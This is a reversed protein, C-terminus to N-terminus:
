FPWWSKKTPFDIILKKLTNINEKIEDDSSAEWNLDIKGRLDCVECRLLLSYKKELTLQKELLKYTKIIDRLGDIMNKLEENTTDYSIKSKVSLVYKQINEDEGEKLSNLKCMLEKRTIARTKDHEKIRNNIISEIVFLQEETFSM